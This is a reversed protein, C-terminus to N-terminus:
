DERRLIWTRGTEVFGTSRYLGHAAARQAGSELRVEAAGADGAARLAAFLLARGIGRGRVPETVVLDPIWAWLADTWFVRQWELTCVGVTTGDLEAVISAARGTAVERAHAAYTRLVAEMRDPVPSRRPGFEAILRTVADGDGDALPRISVGAV